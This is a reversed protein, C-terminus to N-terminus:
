VWCFGNHFLSFRKCRILMNMSTQTEWQHSKLSAYRQEEGVVRGQGMMYPFHQQLQTLNSSM